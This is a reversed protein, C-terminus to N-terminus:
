HFALRICMTLDQSELLFFVIKSVSVRELTLLQVQLLFSCNPAASLLYNLLM